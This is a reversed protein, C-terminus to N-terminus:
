TDRQPKTVLKSTLGMVESPSRITKQKGLLDDRVAAISGLIMAITVSEVIKRDMGSRILYEGATAPLGFSIETVATAIEIPIDYTEATIKSFYDVSPERDFETPNKERRLGPYSQLREVILGREEIYSLYVRTLEHVLDEFTAASEAAAYQRNRLYRYERELLEGLLEPLNRFYRYMLTKSVDAHQGIAEISLNATGLSAVLEAASDLIMKRRKERSFRRKIGRTRGDGM